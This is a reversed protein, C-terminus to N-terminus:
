RRSREPLDARMLSFSLSRVLTATGEVYGKAPLFHLLRRIPAQQMKPQARLTADPAIAM